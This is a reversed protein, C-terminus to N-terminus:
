YKVERLVSIFDELQEKWADNRLWLLYRIGYPEIVLELASDSPNRKSDFPRSIKNITDTESLLSRFDIHARRGTMPNEGHGCCSQTTVLFPYLNIRKIYPVIEKDLWGTKIEEELERLRFEREKESCVNGQSFPSSIGVEIRPRENKKIMYIVM